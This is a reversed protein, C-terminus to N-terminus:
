TRRLIESKLGSTQDRWQCGSNNQLLDVKEEEISPTCSLRHLHMSIQCKVGVPLRVCAEPFSLINSRPCSRPLCRNLTRKVGCLGSFAAPKRADRPLHTARSFYEREGVKGEEGSKTMRTLISTAVTWAAAPCGRLILEEITRENPPAAQRLSLVSSDM